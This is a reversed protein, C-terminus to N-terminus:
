LERAKALLADKERMIADVNEPSRWLKDAEGKITDIFSNEPAGTGRLADQQQKWALAKALMEERYKGTIADMGAPVSEVSIDSFNNSLAAVMVNAESARCACPKQSSHIQLAALSYATNTIPQKAEGKLSTAIMNRLGQNIAATDPSGTLPADLVDGSRGSMLSNNRISAILADEKGSIDARGAMLSEMFAETAERDALGFPDYRAIQDLSGGPEISVDRGYRYSGIVEYGRGDSVPFVPSPVNLDMPVQVKKPSTKQPHNTTKPSIPVAAGAGSTSSAAPSAPAQPLPLKHELAYLYAEQQKIKAAQADWVAQVEASTASTPNTLSNLNALTDPDATPSGLVALRQGEKTASAATSNLDKTSRSATKAQETTATAEQASGVKPQVTAAYTSAFTSQLQKKRLAGFAQAIADRVYAGNKGAEGLATKADGFTSTMLLTKGKVQVATPPVEFAGLCDAFAESLIDTEGPVEGPARNAVDQATRDAIAVPSESQDLATRYQPKRISNVAFELTRIENTPVIKTPQFKPDNSLIEIGRIGSVEEPEMRYPEAAGHFRMLRTSGAVTVAVLTKGDKDYIVKKQGQQEADPHSASFYRYYGPQTGCSMSAKKDSLIDLLNATSNAKPYDSSGEMSKTVANILSILANMDEAGDGVLGSAAKSTILGANIDEVNTQATDIQKQLAEVKKTDGKVEAEDKSKSLAAIKKNLTVIDKQKGTNISVIMGQASVYDNAAKQLDVAGPVTTGLSFRKKTTESDIMEYVGPENDVKRLVNGLEVAADIFLRLSDADRLYDEADSGLIATMPNIHETDLAMVVNPFGSLRSEGADNEVRIPREPMWLKDLKVTKSISDDPAELDGPPYFKGRKATLTLTTTCSGGPQYSHSLNEVYFYCDYRPVYVPYGPRIEPRIPITASGSNIKANLVDLRNVAAFFMSKPDNFYATDFNHPRWGYQAVLRYDIYQGRVGWENEMGTGTYNKVQSGKLTVFTAEPEKTSHSIDIIDGDELRYVRSTSTDLNYFPPKFVFDGDVDQFFEWGTVEVVRNIIDLKPEYSSEFINIQGWQGIDNIFALKEAVNIPGGTPSSKEAESLQGAIIAKQRNAQDNAPYVETQGSGQTDFRFKMVSLVSDLSAQGLWAAQATNFLKGSAGFMRLNNIKTSFRRKWYELAVSFMTRGTESVSAVNTQDSFVQAVGSAAGAVDHFMQYVIQYPTKGTLTHGVYSMRLMGNDPRAGFYSANTSIDQYQWFYLMSACNVTFQQFGGAENVDVQTIVGHFVHYYPYNLVGTLDVDGLGLEESNLNAYMGKLAFFGKMYIHIEM